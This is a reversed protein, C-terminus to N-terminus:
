MNEQYLIPPIRMNLKPPLNYKSIIQMFCKVYYMYSSISGLFQNMQLYMMTKEKYVSLLSFTTELFLMILFNQKIHLAEGIIVYNLNQSYLFINVYVTPFDEVLTTVKYYFIKLYVVFSFTFLFFLHILLNTSNHVAYDLLVFM